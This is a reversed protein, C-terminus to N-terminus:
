HWLYALRLLKPIEKLAEKFPSPGKLSLDELDEVARDGEIEISRGPVNYPRDLDEPSSDIPSPNTSGAPKYPRERANDIIPSTPGPTLSRSPEIKFPLGESIDPFKEYERAKEKNFPPM